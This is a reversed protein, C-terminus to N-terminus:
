KEMITEQVKVGLHRGAELEYGLVVDGKQLLTSNKVEGNCSLIRIHWDDQVIVNVEEKQPGQASILLMPRKELKVRGVNVVRTRGKSNVVLVEDGAKLESIYKAINNPCLIYSHIAGANVRFPRLNMYPLYHNESSVLVYGSSKSGILMGEDVDLRDTTDICARVGMALHKIEIIKLPVINLQKEKQKEIYQQMQMIHEINNTRLLLADCGVEMTMSSNWGDLATDVVKCIQCNEKQGKALILELPINTPDKFEVFMVKAKEVLAVAENMTREDIVKHFIANGKYNDQVWIVQYKSSMKKYYEIVDKKENARVFVKIRTSWKEIDEISDVLIGTYGHEFVVNLLNQKDSNNVKRLDFWLEKEKM